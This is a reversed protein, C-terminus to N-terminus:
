RECVAGGQNWARPAGAEARFLRATVAGADAPLFYDDVVVDWSMGRAVRQGETLLRRRDDDNQPLREAIKQAVEWSQRAEIGDRVSRDIRLADWPSWMKWDPPIFVYDGVIINAPTEGGNARSVFGVCGCVSSPVCLAGSSLPEVQAIGFPEYISQGFEVDAGARLDAFRMQEPMRNGCLAREWGFQNVLCIKVARRGWHFPEVVNFFFHKEDDILDNNDGRHNVPWGYEAEWRYVDEPRRGSPSATSVVFFVASKGQAALNWELHELVRIDRWLAKSTVMRTVHTFVYDPRFGYLNEAYQLLLERSALKQPLDIAAAPVGNYVLDIPATSFVGGLFRLEDVTPDGVAFIRDCVGARLIMAHKYFWSHDGFVQDLSVGQLRGLRLANYFRTDHGGSSEM